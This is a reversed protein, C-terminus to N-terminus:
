TNYGPRRRTPPALRSPSPSRHKRPTPEEGGEVGATRGVLKLPDPPVAGGAPGRGAEPLIAVNGSDAASAAASAPSSAAPCTPRPPRGECARVGGDEEGDEGEEGTSGRGGRMTILMMMTMLM